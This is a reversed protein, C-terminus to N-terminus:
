GPMSSNSVCNCLVYFRTLATLFYTGADVPGLQLTLTCCGSYKYPSIHNFYIKLLVDYLLKSM